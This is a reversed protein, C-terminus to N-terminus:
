GRGTGPGTRAMMPLARIRTLRELAVDPGESALHLVVGRDVVFRTM